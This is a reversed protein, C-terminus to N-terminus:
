QITRREGARTTAKLKPSLCGTRREDACVGANGIFQAPLHFNHLAHLLLTKLHRPSQRYVISIHSVIKSFNAIFLYSIRTNAM